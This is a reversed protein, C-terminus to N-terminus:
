AREYYTGIDATKPSAVPHYAGGTTVTYYTKGSVVSQDSTKTYTGADLGKVTFSGDTEDVGVEEIILRGSLEVPRVGCGPLLVLAPLIIISILKKM